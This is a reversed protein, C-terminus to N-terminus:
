LEIYGLREFPTLQAISKTRLLHVKIPLEQGSTEIGAWKKGCLRLPRLTECCYEASM